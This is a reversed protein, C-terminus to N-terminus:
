VERNTPLTLHTYSVPIVNEYILSSSGEHVFLDQCGELPTYVPNHERDLTEEVGWLADTMGFNAAYGFSEGGELGHM